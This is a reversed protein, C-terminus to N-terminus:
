GLAFRGRLARAFEPAVNHAFTVFGYFVQERQWTVMPVMVARSLSRVSVTAVVFVELKGRGGEVIPEQGIDLPSPFPTDTRFPAYLSHNHNAERTVEIGRPRLGVLRIPTKANMLLAVLQSNRQSCAHM